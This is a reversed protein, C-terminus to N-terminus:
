FKQGFNRFFSRFSSGPQPTVSSLGQQKEEYMMVIDL